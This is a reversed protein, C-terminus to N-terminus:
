NQNKSAKIHAAAKESASQSEDSTFQIPEFPVQTKSEVAAKEKIKQFRRPYFGRRAAVIKDKRQRLAVKLDEVKDRPDQSDSM